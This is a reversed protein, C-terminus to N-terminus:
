AAEVLLYQQVIQVTDEVTRIESLQEDPIKIQFEYEASVGIELITLSDLALDEKYSANDSIDAVDLNAINAISAKIKARIEEVSM